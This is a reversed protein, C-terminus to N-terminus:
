EATLERIADIVVEEPLEEPWVPGSTPGTRWAQYDASLRAAATETDEPNGAIQQLEDDTYTDLLWEVAQRKQAFYRENEPIYEDYPIHLFIIHTEGYLSHHPLVTRSSGIIGPYERITESLRMNGTNKVYLTIDETNSRQMYERKVIDAQLHKEINAQLKQMDKRMDKRM